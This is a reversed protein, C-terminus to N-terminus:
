NNATANTANGGYFLYNSTYKVSINQSQGYSCTSPPQGGITNLRFVTSAIDGEVRTVELWTIDLTSNDPSPLTGNAKAIVFANSVGEFFGSSTFDWKPSLGSGTVPNPVFYHQALVEPPNAFHLIDIIDLITFGDDLSTWANYLMNPLSQFFSENVVCSVDFLEAVAGVNTFTNSSSCTYNQVGFALGIHSPSVAPPIVLQTQNSPLSPIYSSIDCGASPTGLFSSAGSAFLARTAHSLGLAVM